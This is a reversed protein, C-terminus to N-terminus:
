EQIYLKFDEMQNRTIGSPSRLQIIIKKKKHWTSLSEYDLSFIKDKINYM